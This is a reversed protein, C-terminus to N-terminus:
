FGVKLEGSAAGLFHSIEMTQGPYPCDARNQYELGEVLLGVVSVSKSSPSQKYTLSVKACDVDM